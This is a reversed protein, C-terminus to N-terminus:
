RNNVFWVAYDDLLQYNLSNKDTAKLESLGLYFERGDSIRRVHAGIDEEWFLMWGSEIERSTRLLEYHDRYSPQTKKLHDYEEKDGPGLVYFEEWRFDEIGTVECPLMLNDKLYKYFIEIAQDFDLAAGKGIIEEIQRDQADKKTM